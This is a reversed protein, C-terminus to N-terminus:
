EERRKSLLSNIAIMALSFAGGLASCILIIWISGLGTNKLAPLIFVFTIGAAVGGLVTTMLQSM